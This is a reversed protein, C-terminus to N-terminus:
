PHVNELILYYQSCQNDVFIHLGRFNGKFYGLSGTISLVRIKICAFNGM